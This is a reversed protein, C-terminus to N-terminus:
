PPGLVDGYYLGRLHLNYKSFFDPEFFMPMCSKKKAMFGFWGINEDCCYNRSFDFVEGLNKFHWGPDTYFLGILRNPM